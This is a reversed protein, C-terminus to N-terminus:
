GEWSSPQSIEQPFLKIFNSVPSLTKVVDNKEVKIKNPCVQDQSQPSNTYGSDTNSHPVYTKGAEVKVSLDLLSDKLNKM